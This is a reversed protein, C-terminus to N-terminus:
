KSMKQWELLYYWGTYRCAKTRQPAIIQLYLTRWLNLHLCGQNRIEHYESTFPVLSHVQVISWNMASKNRLPDSVLLLAAPLSVLNSSTRCQLCERPTIDQWWGRGTQKRVEVSHAAGRWWLRRTDCHEAEGYGWFKNLWDVRFKFSQFWSGSYIKGGTVQNEQIEDSGQSASQSLHTRYGIGLCFSRTMIGWVISCLM